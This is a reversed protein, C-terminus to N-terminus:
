RRWITRSLVLELSEEEPKWDLVTLGLNRLQRSFSRSAVDRTEAAFAEMDNVKPILNYPLINILLIDVYRRTKKYALIRM